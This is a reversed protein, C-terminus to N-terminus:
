LIFRISKNESDEMVLVELDKYNKFLWKIDTMIQNAQNKNLDGICYDKRTETFEKSILFNKITAYAITNPVLNSTEKSHNNSKMYMKM